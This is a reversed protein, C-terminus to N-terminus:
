PAVVVRLLPRTIDPVLIDRQHLHGSDVNGADGDESPCPQLRAGADILEGPEVVHEISKVGTSDADKEGRRSRGRRRPKRQLIRLRQGHSRVANPEPWTRSLM